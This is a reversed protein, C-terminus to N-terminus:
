GGLLSCALQVFRGWFSLSGVRHAGKLRVEGLKEEELYVEVGGLREGSGIPSPYSEAVRWKYRLREREGPLLPLFLDREAVLEVYDAEGGVVLVKTLVQGATFIKERGYTRYGYDFLWVVDEWMQPADLVVAVLQWGNRTASGALCRGAKRTWGTKIGDAGPYMELLRNQNNLYRGEHGPWTIVQCGTSVIRQFIQDELARCSILALDYATSYHEEDPLGHPNTFNSNVAGLQRARGTMLLAFNEVSGALQEAIAVAADNGSCLMLGYLLEELSKEEGQELWISSGTTQAAGPSIVVREGLDGMELALLATMIKTVSAMPRARHAEKAWLVRGSERDMLLASEASVPPEAAGAKWPGPIFILFLCLVGTLYRAM